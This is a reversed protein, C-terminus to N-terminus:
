YEEKLVDRMWNFTNKDNLFLRSSKIEDDTKKTLYDIYIDKIINFKDKYITILSSNAIIKLYIDLVKNSDKITSLDPIDEIPNSYRNIILISKIFSNSNKIEFYNILENEFYPNESYQFNETPEKDYYTATILYKEPLLIEYPNSEVTIGTFTYGNINIKRIKM